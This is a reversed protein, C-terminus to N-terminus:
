MELAQASDCRLAFQNGRSIRADHDALDNAAEGAFKSLTYTSQPGRAGEGRKNVYM